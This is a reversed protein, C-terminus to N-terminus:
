SAFSAPYPRVNAYDRIQDLRSRLEKVRAEIQGRDGQSMGAIKPLMAQVTAYGKEARAFHPSNRSAAVDALAFGRDLERQVLVLLDYNTRARLSVLKKTRDSMAGGPPDFIRCGEAVEM